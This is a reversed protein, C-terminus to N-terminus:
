NKSKSKWPGPILEMFFAMGINMLGFGVILSVIGLNFWKPLQLFHVEWFFLPAVFAILFGLVFLVIAIQASARSWVTKTLESSM